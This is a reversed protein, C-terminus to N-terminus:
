YTIFIRATKPYKRLYGLAPTIKTFSQIDIHQLFSPQSHPQFIHRCFGIGVLRRRSKNKWAKDRLEKVRSVPEWAERFLTGDQFLNAQGALFM